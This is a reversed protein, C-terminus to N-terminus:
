LQRRTVKRPGSEVRSQQCFTQGSGVRPGVRGRFTYDKILYNNLLLYNNYILYRHFDILGFTTNSSEYRNLYWSIILLFVSLDSTSVRSSGGVLIRCFRSGVRSSRVQGSGVRGAPGDSGYVVSAGTNSRNPM